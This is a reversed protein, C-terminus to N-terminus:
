LLHNGLLEGFRLHHRPFKLAVPPVAYEPPFPLHRFSPWASGCLRFRISPEDFHFQDAQLLTNSDAAVQRKPRPSLPQHHHKYVRTHSVMSCSVNQMPLSMPLLKWDHGDAQPRSPWLGAFVKGDSATPGPANFVTAISFVTAPHGMRQANHRLPHTLLNMAM